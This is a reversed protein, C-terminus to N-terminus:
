NRPSAQKRPMGLGESGAEIFEGAGIYLSKGDPGAVAVIGSEVEVLTRAGGTEVRFITLGGMKDTTRIGGFLAKTKFRFKEEGKSIINFAFVGKKLKLVTEAGIEDIALQSDPGVAIQSVSGPRGFEIMAKSKGGSGVSDGGAIEVPAEEALTWESTGAKQVEVKGQTARIMPKGDLRKRAERVEMQAHTTADQLDQAAATRWCAFIALMFGLLSKKM